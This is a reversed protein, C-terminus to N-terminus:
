EEKPRKSKKLPNAKCENYLNNLDFESIVSEATLNFKVLKNSNNVVPRRMVEQGNRFLVLTPLQKSLPSTNIRFQKATDENR